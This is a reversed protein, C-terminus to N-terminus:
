ALDRLVTILGALDLGEIRFGQPTVLVPSPPAAIASVASPALEVQRVHGRAPRRLWAILTPASVGIERALHSLSRGAVRGARVITVIEARLDEPYRVQSAAHGQRQARIRLRLKRVRDDM